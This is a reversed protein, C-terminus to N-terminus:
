RKVKKYKTCNTVDGGRIKGTIFYYDCMYETRWKKIYACDKPCTNDATPEDSAKVRHKQYRKRDRAEQRCKPSCYKKGKRQTEFTKDCIPCYLKYIL